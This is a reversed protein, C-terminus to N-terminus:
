PDTSLREATPLAATVTPLSPSLELLPHSCGAEGLALADTLTPHVALSRDLGTMRLIKAVQLPPDALCVTIGVLTARRQTAVLVALGAADCFRVGSLDLVLPKMTEHLVGLLRERLGSASMIDIEGRLMAITHAPGYLVRVGVEPHGATPVVAM